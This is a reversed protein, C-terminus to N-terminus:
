EGRATPARTAARRERKFKKWDSSKTSFLVDSVIQLIGIALVAWAAWAPANTLPYLALAVFPALKTAIAGAAHM